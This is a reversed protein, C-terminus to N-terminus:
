AIPTNIRVMWPTNISGGYGPLSGTVFPNVGGALSLGAPLTLTATVNNAV